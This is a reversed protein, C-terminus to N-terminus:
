CDPPVKALQNGYLIVFTTHLNRIQSLILDPTSIASTLVKEFSNIGSYVVKAFGTKLMVDDYHSFGLALM